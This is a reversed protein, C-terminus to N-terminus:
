KSDNQNQSNTYICQLHCLYTLKLYENEVFVAKYVQPKPGPKLPMKYTPFPYLGTVASSPFLPPQLERGAHEYTPMSIEGYTVRVSASATAHVSGSPASQAPLVTSLLSLALLMQKM